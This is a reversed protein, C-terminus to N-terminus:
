PTMNPHSSALSWVCKIPLENSMVKLWLGKLIFEMVGRFTDGDYCPVNVITLIGEPVDMTYYDLRRKKEKYAQYLVKLKEMTDPKHCSVMNNGVFDEENLMEKFLQICKRNAYLVIFDADSIVVATNLDDLMKAQVDM